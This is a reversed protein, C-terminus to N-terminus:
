LLHIIKKKKKMNKTISLRESLYIKNGIVSCLLRGYNIKIILTIKQSFTVQFMSM